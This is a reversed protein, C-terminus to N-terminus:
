MITYTAYLLMAHVHLMIFTTSIFLNFILGSHFLFNFPFFFFSKDSAVGNTFFDM